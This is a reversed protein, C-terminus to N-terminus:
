LVVAFAVLQVVSLLTVSVQHFTDDKGWSLKLLLVQATLDQSNNATVTTDPRHCLTATYERVREPDSPHCM